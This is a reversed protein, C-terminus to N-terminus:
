AEYHYKKMSEILMQLLHADSPPGRSYLDSNKLEQIFSSFDWLAPAGSPEGLEVRFWDALATLSPSNSWTDQQNQFTLWSSDDMRPDLWQEVREEVLRDFDEIPEPGTPTNCCSLFPFISFLLLVLITTRM